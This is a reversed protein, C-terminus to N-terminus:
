VMVTAKLGSEQRCYMIHMYRLGLKEATAGINGNALADLLERREEVTLLRNAGDMFRREVQVVQNGDASESTWNYVDTYETM